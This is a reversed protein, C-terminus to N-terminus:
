AKEEERKDGIRRRVASKAIRICIDKADDVRITLDDERLNVITGFIGGITEIKDKPKLSNLMQERENRQKKQTGRSQFWMLLLMILLIAPFWMMWGPQQPKGGAQGGPAAAPADGGTTQAVIIAQFDKM